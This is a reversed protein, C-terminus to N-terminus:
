FFKEFKFKNSIKDIFDNIKWKKKIVDNVLWKETKGRIWFTFKIKNQRSRWVALNSIQFFIDAIMM